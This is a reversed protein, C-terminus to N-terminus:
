DGKTAKLIEGKHYANHMNKMKAHKQKNNMKRTVWRLNEVKNNQRDSDIHDVYRKRATRGDVWALAVLKHVPLM